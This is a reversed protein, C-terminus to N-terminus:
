KMVRMSEFKVHLSIVPPADQSQYVQQQQQQQYQYSENVRMDNNNTNNNNDDYQQRPITRYNNM